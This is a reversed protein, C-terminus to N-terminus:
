RSAANLRITAGSPVLGAILTHTAVFYQHFSGAKRACERSERAARCGGAHDSAGNRVFAEMWLFRCRVRPDNVSNLTPLAANVLEEREKTWGFFYTGVGGRYADVLAALVPEADSKLQRAEEIADLCRQFNLFGWPTVSDILAKVRRNTNGALRAQDDVAALDAVAGEPDSSLVDELVPALDFAENRLELRGAEIKSLDLLDNILDLLHQSDGPM